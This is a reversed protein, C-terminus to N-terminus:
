EGTAVDSEKAADAEKGADVDGANEKYFYKELLDNTVAKIGEDKHYELPEICALGGAEEFQKTCGLVRFMAEFYTLAVQIVEGDHSKLLSVFAKVAGEEMMAEAWEKRGHTAIHCLCYAAELKIEFSSALLSVLKTIVGSNVIEECAKVDVSLNSLLWLTEKIIHRHNSNLFKTVTSIMTPCETCAKESLEDPGSFVNGLFRLVPTALVNNNLDQDESHIILQEVMKSVAGSECMKTENESSASLYCLVWSVETLVSEEFGEKLLLLLPELIGAQLLRTRKSNDGRALNSLAFAANQICGTDTSKLLAILPLIAGQIILLDRCQESDGAINGLAWACQEQLNHNDGSLYTIMYPATARAVKLTVDHEGATINAVCWVSEIQLEADTESLLGVLKDLAGEHEIFHDIIVSGQALARQLMKLAGVRTDNSHLDQIAKDVQEISVGDDISEDDTDGHTPSAAPSHRVRKADLLQARKDKSLTLSESRWKSRLDSVTKQHGKKRQQKRDM